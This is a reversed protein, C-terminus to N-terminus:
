FKESNISILDPQMPIIYLVRCHRTGVSLLITPFRCQRTRIKALLESAVPFSIVGEGAINCLLIAPSEWYINTRLIHSKETLHPVPYHSERQPPFPSHTIIFRLSEPRHNLFLLLCLFTVLIPLYLM